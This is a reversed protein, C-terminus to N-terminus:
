VARGGWVLVRGTCPWDWVVHVRVGLRLVLQEAAFAKIRWERICVRGAHMVLAVRRAKAGACAVKWGSVTVACKALACGVVPRVQARELGTASRPELQLVTM